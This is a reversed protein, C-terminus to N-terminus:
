YRVLIKKGTELSFSQTVTLMITIDSQEYLIELKIKLYVQLTNLMFTERAKSLM